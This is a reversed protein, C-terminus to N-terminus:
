SLCVAENPFDRGDCSGVELAEAPQAVTGELSHKPSQM